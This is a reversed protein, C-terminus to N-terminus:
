AGNREIKGASADALLMQFLERWSECYPPAIKAASVRGFITEGASAARMKEALLQPAAPPFFVAQDYDGVTEHAYPLDALLMPKHFTKCESIPMGWTELLSPFVLCDAAGYREFVEERKLLGLFKVRKLLAFRKVLEAAYRNESGDFTLWLEFSSQGNKELLEAALLLSEVNKFVRPFCPYFFCYNRGESKKGNWAASAHAAREEPHAVIIRDIGYRRRFAQRLWDQQVIVWKNRRLNIGYLYGYFLTFLAFKWDLRLDQFRLRFFPAPNHCYVAQMTATVRPSIDHMSLWLYPRLQESLRHLDLYEFKLRRLWSSKVEPYELFKIGPIDFLASRHVIAILEYDDSHQEALVRLADKLVSLPGMESFSVGSIVVAPKM